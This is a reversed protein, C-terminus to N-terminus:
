IELIYQISEVRLQSMIVLLGELSRIARSKQVTCRAAGGAGGGHNLLAIPIVTCQFLGKQSIRNPLPVLTPQFQLSLVQSVCVMISQCHLVAGTSPFTICSCGTSMLAAAARVAGGMGGKDLLEGGKARM